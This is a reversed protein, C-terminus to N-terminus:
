SAMKQYHTAALAVAEFMRINYHNKHGLEIMLDYHLVPYLKAMEEILNRKNMKGDAIFFRELEKISHRQIKIRAKKGLVIMRSVLLKLNKHSRSPHLKKIAIENIDYLEIQERIIDLIRVAKEKTWKGIFTKIRWDLLNSGDFIALGLYRTGPNIGLIRKPERAM